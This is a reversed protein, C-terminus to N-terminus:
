GVVDGPPVCRAGGGGKGRRAVSSMPRTRRHLIRPRGCSRALEAPASGSGAGTSSSSSSSLSYRLGYPPSNIYAMIVRAARRGGHM